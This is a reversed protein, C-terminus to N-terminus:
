GPFVERFEVVSSFEHRNPYLEQTSVEVKLGPIRQLALQDVIPTIPLPSYLNFKCLDSGQTVSIRLKRLKTDRLGMRSPVFQFNCFGDPFALSRELHEVEELSIGCFSSEIASLDSKLVCSARTFSLYELAPWLSWLVGDSIFDESVIETVNPFARALKNLQYQSQGHTLRLTRVTTIPDQSIFKIPDLLYTGELGTCKDQDDWDTKRCKGFLEFTTINAERLGFQFSLVLEQPIHVGTADLKLFKLAPWSCNTSPQDMQLFHVLGVFDGEFHELTAYSRESLLGLLKRIVQTAKAPLHRYLILTMKRLAPKTGAFELFTREHMGLSGVYTNSPIILQFEKVLYAKNLILLLRLVEPTIHGTIEQLNPAHSLLCTLDTKISSVELTRLNLLFKEDQAIGFTQIINLGPPLKYIALHELELNKEQLLKMLFQVAGCFSKYIWEIKVCKWSTNLLNPYLSQIDHGRLCRHTQRNYVPQYTQIHLGQFPVNSASSLLEDLKKLNSCPCDSGIKALQQREERLLYRSHFNWTKNVLAFSLLDHHSLLPSLQKWVLSIAFAQQVASHEEMGNGLVPHDEM